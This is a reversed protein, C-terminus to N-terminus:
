RGARALVARDRRAGRAAKLVLVDATAAVLVGRIRAAGRRAREFDIPSEYTADILLGTVPPTARLYFRGELHRRDVPATVREGWSTVAYGKEGLRRVLGDLSEVAVLVDCDAPPRDLLHPATLALAATGILVTQVGLRELSRM